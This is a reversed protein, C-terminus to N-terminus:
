RELILHAPLGEVFFRRWMGPMFGSQVLYTDHGVASEVLELRGRFLQTSKDKNYIEILMGSELRVVGEEYKYAGDETKHADDFFLYPSGDAEKLVGLTGRNEM